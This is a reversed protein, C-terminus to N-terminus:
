PLEGAIVGCGHRSARIIIEFASYLGVIHAPSAIDIVAKHILLKKYVLFAIFEAHESVERDHASTM